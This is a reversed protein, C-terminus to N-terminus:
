CTMFTCLPVHSIAGSIRVRPVGHDVNYGPLDVMGNRPRNNLSTKGCLDPTSGLGMEIFHKASM